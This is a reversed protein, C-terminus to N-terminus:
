IESVSERKGSVKTQLNKSYNQIYIENSTREIKSSDILRFSELVRLM